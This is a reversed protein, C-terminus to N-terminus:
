QAKETPTEISALVKDALLNAADAQKVAATVVDICRMTYGAANGKDNDPAARELYSRALDLLTVSVAKAVMVQKQEMSRVVGSWAITELPTLVVAAAQRTKAEAVKRAEDHELAKKLEAGEMM